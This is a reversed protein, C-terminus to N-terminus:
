VQNHWERVQQDAADGVLDDHKGSFARKELVDKASTALDPSLLDPSLPGSLWLPVKAHVHRIAMQCGPIIIAHKQANTKSGNEHVHSIIQILAKRPSKKEIFYGPSVQLTPLTTRFATLLLPGCARTPVPPRCLTPLHPGRDRHIQRQQVM